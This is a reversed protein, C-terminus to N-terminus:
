LEFDEGSFIDLLSPARELFAVILSGNVGVLLGHFVLWFAQFDPVSEFLPLLRSELSSERAGTPLGQSVSDNKSQCMHFGRALPILPKVLDSAYCVLVRM